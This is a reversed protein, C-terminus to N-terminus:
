KKCFEKITKQKSIKQWIMKKCVRKIKKIIKKFDKQQKKIKQLFKKQNKLWEKALNKKAFRKLWFKKAFKKGLKQLNGVFNKDNKEGFINGPREWEPKTPIDLVAGFDPIKSKWGKKIGMINGFFEQSHGAKGPVRIGLRKKAVSIKNEGALHCWAM